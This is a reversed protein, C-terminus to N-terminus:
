FVPCGLPVPVSLQARPEGGASGMGPTPPPEGQAGSGVRRRLGPAQSPSRDEADRGLLEQLEEFLQSFVCM